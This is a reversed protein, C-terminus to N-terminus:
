FKFAKLIISNKSTKSVNEALFYGELMKSVRM